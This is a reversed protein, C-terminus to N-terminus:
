SHREILASRPGLVARWLTRRPACLGRGCNQVEETPEEQPRSRRTGRLSLEPEDSQLISASTTGRAPRTPPIPFVGIGGGGGRLRSAFYGLFDGVIGEAVKTGMPPSALGCAELKLSWAELELGCAALRLSRFM